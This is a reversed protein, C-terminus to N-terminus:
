AYKVAANTLTGAVGDCLDIARELDTLVEKERVLVKPDLDPDHFLRAIEERYIVDGEKELRRVDAVSAMVGKWDGGRLHGIAAVLVATSEALKEILREMAPTPHEVGFLVCGRIAHNATHVIKELGSSLRLLDERDLPTSMAGALLDRLAYIAGDGERELAGVEARVDEGPSNGSRFRLLARAGRNAVDAQAELLEFFAARKPFLASLTFRREAPRLRSAKRKKGGSGRGEGM